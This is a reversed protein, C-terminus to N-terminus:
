RVVPDPPDKQVGKGYFRVLRRTAFATRSGRAADIVLGIGTRRM